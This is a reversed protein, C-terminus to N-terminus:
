IYIEDIGSENSRYAALTGDPFVSIRELHAESSLYEEGIPNDPDSLNVMWLDRSGGQGREFVILTDSPWQMIFQNADLTIISRPPSGGNLDKVFLDLGDTGERDSSFAVRTGDPSFVARNNSGEFTLQRPTTGLAVNYTYIQGEAESSFVVSEGDPSWAVGLGPIDRPALVLPEENGELDVVVLQRGGASVGTSSGEVYLLTGDAGLLMDARLPVVRVGDFLPIASGTIALPGLDFPAAFLAGDSRVYVLHGTPSYWARIVEELILESSQDRLDVVHLNRDLGVVFAGRAGPLGTAWIVLDDPQFAVELPEGWGGLDARDSQQKRHIGARLPHDRRRALGTRYECRGRGRGVEGPLGGRPAAQLPRDQHCVRDMPRRPLIRREAGGETGPIPTIETSGRMKLAPQVDSASSGVPLIMSSGDPATVAYQGFPPGELGAWGETSLVQRTVPQSPEPRLRSSGLALTVVLAVGTTVMALPTWQGRGEAADVGAEEGHRFSQDSIANAFDQASGFRDPPLKELAKRIAAAVNPPISM